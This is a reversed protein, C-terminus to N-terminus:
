SDKAEKKHKNTVQGEKVVAMVYEGMNVTM